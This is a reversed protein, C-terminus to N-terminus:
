RRRPRRIAGSTALCRRSACCLMPLRCQTTLLAEGCDCCFEVRCLPDAITIPQDLEDKGYLYRSGAQPPSRLPTSAGGSQLDSTCRGALAASDECGDMAIQASFRHGNAPNGFREILQTQYAAPRYGTGPRAHNRGRAAACAVAAEFAPDAITEAITEYGALYGLYAMLSHLAMSCALEDERVTKVDTVFQVGVRDWAPRLTAFRDEIVWQGFPEARVVGRDEVGRINHRM